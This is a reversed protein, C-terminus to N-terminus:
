LPLISTETVIYDESPDSPNRSDSVTLPYGVADGRERERSTQNGTKQKRNGTDPPHLTILNGESQQRGVVPSGETDGM